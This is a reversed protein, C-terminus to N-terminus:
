APDTGIHRLATDPAGGRCLKLKSPRQCPAESVAVQLFGGGPFGIYKSHPRTRGTLTNVRKSPNSKLSWPGSPAVKPRVSAKPPRQLSLQCLAKSRKLCSIQTRASARTSPSSASIPEHLVDNQNQHPASCSNRLPSDNSSTCPEEAFLAPGSHTLTKPPPHHLQLLSSRQHASSNSASRCSRLATGTPSSDSTASASSAPRCCTFFSAACSSM